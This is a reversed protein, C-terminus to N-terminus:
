RYLRPIREEIYANNVNVDTFFSMLTAVVCRFIKCQYAAFEWKVTNPKYVMIKTPNPQLTTPKTM